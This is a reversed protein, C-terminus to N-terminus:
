SLRKAGQYLDLNKRDGIITFLDRIQLIGTALLFDSNRGYSKAGLIYFNPEPTLLSAPGTSVQQLCDDSPSALLQAALKIPGGTAYCLHVQLEEFIRPDPRFGVNAIVQDFQGRGAHKGSFVVDFLGLSDNWQLSNVMTEPWHTVIGRSDRAAANAADVLRCREPLADNPVRHIPGPEGDILSRRTVWTLRTASASEALSRLAVMSTAASHGQGIVLVQKNAFRARDAGLVDPIEYVIRERVSREGIAPAGGRGIWNANGFVGSADIVIDAASEWERGDRERALIRFPSDGREENGIRESKLFENRSVAVVATRLRLHEALLDTQSLPVLYRDRWEAGTLLEDPGPARYQEDQADLAALGLSSVNMRFPSFLRVHGWRRVNEAVEGRDFIEVDYGLFRAYLAAELGIPGAGLIAIKAPTDIAM